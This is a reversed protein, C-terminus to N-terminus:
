GILHRLAALAVTILGLILNVLVLMRIAGLASGAAPWDQRAVAAQLVPFHRLRIVAFVITMIAGLGMMSHWARPAMPMISPPMLTLGSAWVLVVMVLVIRFFRRLIEAMLPLRQPPPLMLVAPRVCHHAFFMGGVWVIVALLHVLLAFNRM